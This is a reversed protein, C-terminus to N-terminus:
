RYHWVYYAMKLYEGPVMKWGLQSCWWVAARPTDTGPPPSDVGFAVVSSGDFVRKLTWLARRTQYASTVVLVSRIGKAGAYERVAVAEAYTTPVPEPIVEIRGAPVGGRELEDAAYEYFFPNRQEAVSWGGRQGDNTLVVRPARGERYLKAAWRAREVYTSSGSLVVLADAAGADAKVVLARAALWAVMMWAALCCAAILLWRRARGASRGRVAARKADSELTM